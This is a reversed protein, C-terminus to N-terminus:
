SLHLPAWVCSFKPWPYSSAPSSLFLHPLAYPTLGPRASLLHPPQLVCPPDSSRPDVSGLLLAFGNALFLSHTVLGWMIEQTLTALQCGM